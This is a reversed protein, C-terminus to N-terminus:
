NIDYLDNLAIVSIPSFPLVLNEASTGVKFLKGPAVTAEM